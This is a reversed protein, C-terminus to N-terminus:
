PADDYRDSVYAMLAIAVGLGVAVMLAGYAALTFPTIPFTIPGMTAMPLPGEIRAPLIAAGLLFGLVAAVAVM